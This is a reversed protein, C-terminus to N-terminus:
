QSPTNGIELLKLITKLKVPTYEMKYLDLGVAWYDKVIEVICFGQKEYFIHTLQTTRVIIKQIAPLSQLVNLRHKLMQTGLSKGQYDPHFMCWSLVGTANNNEFNFGGCGVIEDKHLLVYYLARDHDLFRSFELEEEM